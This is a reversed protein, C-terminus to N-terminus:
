LPEAPREKKATTPAGSREVHLVINKEINDSFSNPVFEVKKKMEPKM